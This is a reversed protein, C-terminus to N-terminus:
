YRDFSFDFGNRLYLESDPFLFVTFVCLGEGLNLYICLFTKGLNISIQISVSHQLGDPHAVVQRNSVLLLMQWQTKICFRSNM